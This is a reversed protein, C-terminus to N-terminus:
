AGRGSTAQANTPTAAPSSNFVWERDPHYSPAQPMTIIKNKRERGRENVEGLTGGVM